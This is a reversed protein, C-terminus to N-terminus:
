PFAGGVVLAISPAFQGSADTDASGDARKGRWGLKIVVPSSAGGACEWVPVARGEDRCVVVRGGPFSTYLAQKIDYVDFAAMQAGSCRAGGFCIAGPSPAGQASADYQLQLYAPLHVSNARMRDALTGALQVGNSMLGTGQRTRLSAVQSAAAGLIGISLVLVAVLVEILSFGSPYRVHM